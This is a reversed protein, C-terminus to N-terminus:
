IYTNYIYMSQQAYFFFCLYSFHRSLSVFLVFFIKGFLKSVGMCIKLCPLTDMKFYDVNKQVSHTTNGKGATLVYM